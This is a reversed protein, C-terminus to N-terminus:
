SIGTLIYIVIFVTRVFKKSNTGIVTIEAINTGDIIISYLEVSDVNSPMQIKVIGTADDMEFPTMINYTDDYSVSIDVDGGSTMLNLLECPPSGPFLFM